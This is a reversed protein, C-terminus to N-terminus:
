ECSACEAMYLRKGNAGIQRCKFFQTLLGVYIINQVRVKGGCLPLLQISAPLVMNSHGLLRVIPTNQNKSNFRDIEVDDDILQGITAAIDKIVPCWEKPLASFMVSFVFQRAITERLDDLNFGVYWKFFQM